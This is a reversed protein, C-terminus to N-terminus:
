SSFVTSPQPWIITIVHLFLAQGLSPASWNSFTAPDAVSRFLTSVRGPTEIAFTTLIQTEARVVHKHLRGVNVLQRSRQPRGQASVARQFGLGEARGLRTQATLRMGSMSLVPWPHIYLGFVGCFPKQSLSALSIDESIAFTPCVLRFISKGPVPLFKGYLVKTGAVTNLLKKTYQELGLPVTAAPACACCSARSRLM